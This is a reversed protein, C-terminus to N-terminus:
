HADLLREFERSDSIRCTSNDFLGTFYEIKASLHGDFIVGTELANVRLLHPANANTLLNHVELCHSYEFPLVLLARGASTAEVQFGGQVMHVAAAWVPQLRDRTVAPDFVIVSSKAEFSRDALLSVADDFGAALVAHTPADTGLNVNPVEYLFLVEDGYTRESMVLQFPAPLEGDVIVFRIGLLSLAHADPRRLTIVNRIQPDAPRGLMRTVVRFLAPSITPSYEFLTPIDYSWLGIEHYDNGTERQRRLVPALYDLWGTPKERNIYEITLVRGRFQSGPMTGVRDRLTQILPSLTPPLAYLRDPNDVSWAHDFAVVPVILAVLGVLLTRSREIKSVWDANRADRRLGRDSIRAAIWGVTRYLYQIFQAAWFSAGWAAFIAYVPWMVFEFYLPLPGRWGQWHITCYGLLFIGGVFALASAAYRRLRRSGVAVATVLGFVGFGFLLPGLPGVSSQGYWISVQGADTLTNSLYDPFFYPVTYIFLGLIFAAPGTFGLVIVIAASALLKIPRKAREAGIISGLWAAAVGPVWWMISTPLCVLLIVVLGLLLAVRTVDRRLWCGGGEGICCILAMILAAAAIASGIAPAIVLIPFILSFGFYPVSLIPLLWAAVTAAPWDVELARALLFTSLFLEVSVTSYCIVIYEFSTPSGGSLLIDPIMFCPLWKTNLPYFVDSLGQLPNSTLGFSFSSWIRQNRSLEFYYSGDLGFAIEGFNRSLVFYSFITFLVFHTSVWIAPGIRRM